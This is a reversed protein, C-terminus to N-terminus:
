DRICRVSFGNSKEKNGLSVHTYNFYIFYYKTLNSNYETSSWWTGTESLYYFAGLETVVGSPLGTFGSADFNANQTLVGDTWLSANGALKCGVNTGIFSILTDWESAEPLHWGDPCIGQNAFNDNTWNDAIAAAYTYLAGYTNAEGNANNNYYSYADATNNDSLNGWDTPATVFPIPDGNPYHIVKLNEAMWCQNNIQVTNYTNGDIDTIVGCSSPSYIEYFISDIESIPISIISNDTKRIKMNTQSFLNANTIAIILILIIQKM